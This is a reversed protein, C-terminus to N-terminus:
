LVKPFNVPMRNVEPPLGSWWLPGNSCYTPVTLGDAVPRYMLADHYSVVVPGSKTDVTGCYWAAVIRSVVTELGAADAQSKLTMGVPAGNGLAALRLLNEDFDADDAALAALIRRSTVDPLDAKETLRMSVDLFRSEREDPAAALVSGSLIITGISLATGALLARRTLLPATEMAPMKPCPQPAKGATM